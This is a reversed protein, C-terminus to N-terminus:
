QHNQQQQNHHQQNQQQQKQQQHYNQQRLQRNPHQQHQAVHNTIILNLQDKSDVATQNEDASLKIFVRGNFINYLFIKSNAKLQRVMRLLEFNKKTLNDNVYIRVPATFGISTLCLDKKRIYHKFFDVKAETSWFKLIIPPDQLRKSKSKTVAAKSHRTPLRFCTSLCNKGNFDIAKCINDYIDDLSEGDTTPVGSIILENARAQRELQDIRAETDKHYGSSQAKKFASMSSDVGSDLADMRKVVDEELKLMRVDILKRNDDVKALIEKEFVSLKADVISAITSELGDIRNTLTTIAQLITRNSIDDSKNVGVCIRKPDSDTQPTTNTMDDDNGKDGSNKRKMGNTDNM